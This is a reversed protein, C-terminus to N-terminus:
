PAVKPQATTPRHAANGPTAPGVPNSEYLAVPDPIFVLDGVRTEGSKCYVGFFQGQRVDSALLSAVPQMTLDRATLLTQPAPPIRVVDDTRVVATKESTNVSVVVGVKQHLLFANNGRAVFPTKDSHACGCLLCITPLLWLCAKKLM